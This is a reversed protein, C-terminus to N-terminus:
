FHGCLYHCLLCSCFFFATSPKSHTNISYTHILQQRHMDKYFWHSWVILEKCHCFYSTSLSYLHCKWLVDVCFIHPVSNLCGVIPLLHLKMFYEPVQWKNHSHCTYSVAKWEWLLLADSVNQHVCSVPRHWMFFNEVHHIDYDGTTAM